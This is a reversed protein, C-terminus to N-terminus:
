GELAPKARVLAVEAHIILLKSSSDLQVILWASSIRYIFQAQVLLASAALLVQAGQVLRIAPYVAKLPQMEMNGWRVHLM